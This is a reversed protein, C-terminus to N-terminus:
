ASTRILAQDGTMRRQIENQLSSVARDYLAQFEATREPRKLFPQAEMLTAFLLGQPFYQTSWNTQDSSSLPTPREFYSVVMPYAITPTPVIQFHEYGYDSYYEPIGTLAANPWYERVFSFSRQKLFQVQDNVTIYIGATERWRAPKVLVGDLPAVTSAFRQYGLGRVEMALRNEALMIFRPIQNLFPDDNREAYDQVDQVLSSYTMAEAM